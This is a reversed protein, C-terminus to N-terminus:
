HEDNKLFKFIKNLARNKDKEIEHQWVRLVKWGNRRLAARNRKDRKINTLIKEKWFANPLRKVAQKQKWGHWFDGDVFVAKKKSPLAIDPSGFILKYHKRFYVKKKRLFSFVEKELQTNESKIRSM